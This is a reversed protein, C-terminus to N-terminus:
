LMGDNNRRVADALHQNVGGMVYIKDGLVCMGHLYRSVKMPSKECIYGTKPNYTILMNSPRGCVYVDGGSLYIEDKYSVGAHCSMPAMLSNTYDWTNTHATYVEVSGTRQSKSNTENTGTIGGLAYIKGNHVCLSFNCRAMKLPALRLWRNTRPDYRYSAALIKESSSYLSWGGACYLFGDMMVASHVHMLIGNMGLEVVEKGIKYATVRSTPREKMGGIVCVAKEDGRVKTRCNQKLNQSYLNSQYDLAEAVLEACVPDERMIKNNQVIKEFKEARMLPFRIHKMLDAAYMVRSEEDYMIWSLAIQFLDIEHCTHIDNRELLGVVENVPLYLFEAERASINFNELICRLATDEIKPFCFLQSLQYIKVCNEPSMLSEMFQKCVNIAENIQLHVASSLVLEINQFSLFMKGSYIFEIIIRLGESPIGQLYVRREKTEKMGVTFMAKFYDSCAALLTRHAQYTHHDRSILIADHFLDEEHLQQFAQVISDGYRPSTFCIESTCQAMGNARM